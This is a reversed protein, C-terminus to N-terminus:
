EGQVTIATRASAVIDDGRKLTLRVEYRGGLTFTHRRSFRRRIESVGPEYPECDFTSESITGDDWDWEASLCYYEEDDDAGGRLRGTFLMEAPVFALNNTARLRLEPSEVEQAQANRHGLPMSVLCAVVAVCAGNLVSRSM